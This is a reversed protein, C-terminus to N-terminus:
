KKKLSLIKDYVKNRPLGYEKAIDRALASPAMDQEAMMKCIDKELTEWQDEFPVNLSPDKGSVLLTCEGKIGKRKEVTRSIESMSGRIFEEFPKTMERSLVGARDGMIDIIDHILQLVRKPSEYFILTGTESILYTLKEKRKQAKKPM